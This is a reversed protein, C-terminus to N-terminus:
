SGARPFQFVRRANDEAIKRALADPVNALSEALVKRAHPWNSDSHPYDAEFMVNDEGIRDINAIGAEDAIFCGFINSRFIESPKRANEMGTYWRHREWTYDARELIYPVWGIGGESLAVKLKPFKTFVPSNVLDITAMQSNVGFLAIAATFPADAATTPAGGSGFHLALPVGAEEMVALMPDWHDTHYSPLGLAHPMETFSIAKSGKAIVREVEATTQEIDWMPVLSLPIQRDPAAASWEDLMWDNWASVCAAALEKDPANFFTSGAFGPFTPFCLEAHIGDVDMDKIREGSDYCGPRMDDYATPDTGFDKYDKGAVANLGINHHLVGDYLWLDRGHDDRQIRPGREKYKAPLRDQWVNAHEVVHDDVSVIQVDDPLM